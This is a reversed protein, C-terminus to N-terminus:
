KVQDDDHNKKRPVKKAPKPSIFLKKNKTKPSETSCYNSYESYESKKEKYNENEKNVSETDLIDSDEKSYRRM